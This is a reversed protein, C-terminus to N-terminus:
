DLELALSAAKILNEADDRMTRTIRNYIRSIAAQLVIGMLVAADFHPDADKSLEEHRIGWEFLKVLLDHANYKEHVMHQIHHHQSILLYHFLEPQEDFLKCFLRIMQAIRAKLHPEKAAITNLKEAVDQYANIFLSTALEDKSKYHRYLTGEAIEAQEAIDKITTANVGKKVFLKLACQELRHKTQSGNRM